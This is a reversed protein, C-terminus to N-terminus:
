IVSITVWMIIDQHLLRNNRGMSMQKEGM